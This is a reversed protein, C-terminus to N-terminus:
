LELCADNVIFRTEFNDSGDIIVDYNSLIELINHKELKNKHIKVNIEPNLDFIADKASEAKNRKLDSTEHIIQRQLNSIELNDFDCIGLEGNYAKAGVGSSALYLLCPSGLGGAGIVLVKSQMLKIQGKESIEPMIIQRAYRTKSQYEM